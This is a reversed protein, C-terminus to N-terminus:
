CRAFIHSDKGSGELESIRPALNWWPFRTRRRFGPRRRPITKFLYLGFRWGCFLYRAKRRGVDGALELPGFDMWSFPSALIVAGPLCLLWFANARARESRSFWHSLLILTAPYVGSEAVGLLLRLVFTRSLYPGLRLRDCLPGMCAISRQYIEECELAQGSARRSSCRWTAGSFSARSRGPKSRSWISTGAQYAALCSIHKVISLPSRTCLSLSPSSQAGLPTFDAILSETRVDPQEATTM